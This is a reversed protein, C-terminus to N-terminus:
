FAFASTLMAPMAIARASIADADRKCVPQLLFCPPVLELLSPAASFVSDEEVSKTSSAPEM